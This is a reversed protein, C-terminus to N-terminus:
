VADGWEDLCQRITKKHELKGNKGHLMDSIVKYHIGTREALERQTIGRRLLEMKLNLGYGNCPHKKREM